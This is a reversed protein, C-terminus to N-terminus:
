ISSLSSRNAVIKNSRKAGNVYDARANESRDESNSNAVALELFLSMKYIHNVVHYSQGKASSQRLSCSVNNM